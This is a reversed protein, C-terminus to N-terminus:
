FILQAVSFCAGVHYQQGLTVVMPAREDKCGIIGGNYQGSVNIVMYPCWFLSLSPICYKQALLEPSRHLTIYITYLISFSLILFSTQHKLFFRFTDQGESCGGTLPFIGFRKSIPPIM